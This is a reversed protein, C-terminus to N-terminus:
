EPEWRPLPGRFPKYYKRTAISLMERDGSSDGYVFIMEYDSLTYNAKLIRLKEAGNCNPTSFEGTFIGDIIEGKTCHFDLNQRTLWPAIWLDLSASIVVVEHGKSRHFQLQELAKPRLIGPMIERTFADAKKQIDTAKEGKLHRALLKKKAKESSYLGLKNLILIPSLLIMSRLLKDGGKWYRIFELMTDKSTMTGDLDFVALKKGM